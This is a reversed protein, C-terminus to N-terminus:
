HKVQLSSSLAARLDAGTAARRRSSEAREGRLNPEKHEVSVAKRTKLDPVRLQTHSVVSTNAAPLSLRTAVVYWYYVEWFQVNSVVSGTDEM